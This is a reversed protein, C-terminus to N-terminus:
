LFRGTSPEGQQRRASCGRTAQRHDRAAANAHATQCQSVFSSAIQGGQRVHVAAPRASRAASPEPSHGGRRARAAMRRFRGGFAGRVAYMHKQQFAQGLEYHAVAFNPDMELTTRSQQVSEDYLHAICLADALDASIILSLPDLSEAKRLESLGDSNRGMVILHWAYWHHATAYGPNLAIARKYQKEASAWDWDYLDMAFALSTHAEGLSDDLALAKTAAAKAELSADQPSLIAYEWDGSLAYSDALGAYAEAYNPDKEIALSFYDIAKKLGEGTRKNWFYRGKLYAEYAEPTVAKSKELAAKEQRNL